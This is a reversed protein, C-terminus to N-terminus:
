IRSRPSSGPNEPNHQSQFFGPRPAVSPPPPGRTEYRPFPQLHLASEQATGRNVVHGIVRGHCTGHRKRHTGARVLPHSQINGCPFGSRLLQRSPLPPLFSGIPRYPAPREQCGDELAVSLGLCCAAHQGSGSKGIWFRLGVCADPGACSLGRGPM